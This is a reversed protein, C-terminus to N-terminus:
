LINKRISFPMQPFPMGQHPMQPFPMRQPPMQPFPMRQPPMRQSPMQPFPMQPFPMQSPMQPFPMQPFPIGQSPVQSPMQSPVQSPMQPFPIGHSPLQPFPIGQSPVQSQTQSPMQPFPIGHSPLQPFPIGQSPSQPFPIQPSPLQPSPLQPLSTEQQKLVVDIQKLSEIVKNRMIQTNALNIFSNAIDNYNSSKNLKKTLCIYYLNLTDDVSLSNEGNCLLYCLHNCVGSNTHVGGYDDQSDTPVWKEGKYCKPQECLLPNELNRLYRNKRLIDEGMFWDSSGTIDDTLDTNYNFKNYLWFEFITAFVDAFSENLAGSEGKYELNATAAILGHTLEHGVVDPAVLPFFDNIGNGYIMYLGNWFANDVDLNALSILVNNDNISIRGLKTYLFELYSLTNFYIDVFSNLSLLKAYTNLCVKETEDIKETLYLSSLVNIMQPQFLSTIYKNVSESTIINPENTLFQTIQQTVVSLKNDASSELISNSLLYKKLLLSLYYCIKNNNINIKISNYNSLLSLSYRYDMNLKHEKSDIVMVRLSRNGYTVNSDLLIDDGSKYCKIKVKGLYSTYISFDDLTQKILSFHKVNEVKEEEPIDTFSVSSERSKGCFNM